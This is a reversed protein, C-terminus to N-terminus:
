DHDFGITLNKDCMTLTSCRFMQFQLRYIIFPLGIILIFRSFNQLFSIRVGEERGRGDTWNWELQIGIILSTVVIINWYKGMVWVSQKICQIFHVNLANAEINTKRKTITVVQSSPLILHFCIPPPRWHFCLSPSGPSIWICRSKETQDLIM